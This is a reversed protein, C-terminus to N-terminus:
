NRYLRLANTVVFLSSLSMAASAIMPNLLINFAPFLVGAALPIGITNYFFAWFLNEKINKIVRKSFDIASVVDRIDNKMLVIDACDIAIDSGSKVAIGVDASMLAPSDNIGDGVMAVVGDKKLESVVQEKNEPLVGSIVKEIKLKERIAEATVANDGTLMIVKVDRAKLESIAEASGGKIKDAVAILGIIANDSAFYLVTKGEEALQKAKEAYGSTDVNKETMFEANGALINKGDIEASIGKGFVATFNDAKKLEKGVAYECVAGALPHESLLEASAATIVLEEESVNIPIIDTVSPKGETITGTKDFVVTKANCLTELSQASKILIGNSASKGMAVMIAVPTALGLACPCSIVLVSIGCGLAFEVSKGFILWIIFTLAALSMVVPVFIGSVKDALRAIPAKSASAEEVLRVIKSFTTEEGVKEARMQMSGNINISASMLNDGIKKNVPMSEGTLAAENVSSEGQTVVGDVPIQEGPRIVLIDGKKIQSAPIVTEEGNELRVAQKPSMDMLHKVASNTKNKAREEIYKGVTVLTLIMAASEFYVNSMYKHVTEMNGRGLAAGIMYIAFIGYVVAALSGVAVLSDMNPSKNKLAKFGQIYFKRNLYLIPLTLLFQTFVFAIANEHKMFYSTFPFHLMHGMSIYMLIALFVISLILRLKINEKQPREEAKEQMARASFGAKKVANEIDQVTVTKEDFACVMSKALLNVDASKIGDLRKVAKEVAASCASCSMGEVTFKERM